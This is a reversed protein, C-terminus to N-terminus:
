HPDWMPEFQGVSKASHGRQVESDTSRMAGQLRSTPSLLADGRTASDGM